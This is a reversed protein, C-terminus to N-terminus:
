PITGTPMEKNLGNCEQTLGYNPKSTSPFIWPSDGTHFLPYIVLYLGRTGRPQGKSYSHNSGHPHWNLQPLVNATVNEDQLHELYCSKPIIESRQKRKNISSSPHAPCPRATDYSSLTFLCSWITTFPKDIVEHFWKMGNWDLKWLININFYSM